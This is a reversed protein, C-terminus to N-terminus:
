TLINEASQKTKNWILATVIDSIGDVDLSRPVGAAGQQGPSQKRHEPKGCEPLLRRPLDEAEQRGRATFGSDNAEAFVGWRVFSCSPCNVYDLFLYFHNHYNM